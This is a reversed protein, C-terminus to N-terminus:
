YMVTVVFGILSVVTIALLSYMVGQWIKNPRKGMISSTLVIIGVLILGLLMTVYFYEYM